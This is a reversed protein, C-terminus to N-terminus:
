STAAPDTVNAQLTRAGNTRISVKIGNTLGTYTVGSGLTSSDRGLCAQNLEVVALGIELWSSQVNSNPYRPEILVECNKWRSFTPIQFAGAATNSFVGVEATSPLGRLAIACSAFDPGITQSSPTCVTNRPGTADLQTAAQLSASPAAPDSLVASPPITLALNTSSFLATLVFHIQYSFKM